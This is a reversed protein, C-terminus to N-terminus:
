AVNDTVEMFGGNVAFDENLESYDVRLVDVEGIELPSDIPELKALNGLEGAVSLVVLMKDLQDYVLGDPTVINVRLVHRTEAM